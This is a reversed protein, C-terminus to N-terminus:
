FHLLSYFIPLKMEPTQNAIEIKFHLLVTFICTPLVMETPSTLTQMKLLSAFSYFVQLMM